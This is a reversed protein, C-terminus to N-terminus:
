PKRPWGAGLGQRGVTVAGLLARAAAPGQEGLDLGLAVAAAVASDGVVYMRRQRTSNADM